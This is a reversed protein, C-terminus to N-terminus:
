RSELLSQIVKRSKFRRSGAINSGILIPPGGIFLKVQAVSEPRERHSVPYITLRKVRLAETTLSEMRIPYDPGDTSASEDTM